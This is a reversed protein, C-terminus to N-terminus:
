YWLGLSSSGGDGAANVVLGNEGPPLGWDLTSQNSLLFWLGLSSESEGNLDSGLRPSRTGPRHDVTGYEGSSLDYTWTWASAGNSVILETMAGTITWLPLAEVDGTVTATMASGGNWPLPSDWPIAANWATPAGFAFSQQVAEGYWWPDLAVLEVTFKRHALDGVGGTDVTWRGEFGAVYVLDRLQRGATSVLIGPGQLSAAVESVTILNLDILLPLVVTRPPEQRNILVGGSSAIRQEITLNVPRADLGEVGRLLKVGTSGDFTLTTGTSSVWSDIV